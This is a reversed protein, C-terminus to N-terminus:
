NVIAGTGTYKRLAKIGSSTNILVKSSNATDTTEVLSVGYITGNKAMRLKSTVTGKPEAAIKVAITGNWVRLGIDIYPYPNVVTFPINENFIYYGPALPDPRILQRYVASYKSTASEVYTTIYLHHTGVTSPANFSTPWGWGGGALGLLWTSYAPVPAGINAPDVNANYAPNDLRGYTYILVANACQSSDGYVNVSMVENPAYSSKNLNVIVTASSGDNWLQHKWGDPDMAMNYTFTDAKAEHPLLISFSLSSVIFLMGLTVVNGAKKKTFHIIGALVLLIFSIALPIFPLSDKELNSPPLVPAIKSATNIQFDKTVNIPSGDLASKSSLSLNVKPSVCDDTIPVPIDKEVINEPKKNLIQGCLSGNKDTITINFNPQTIGTSTGIRSGVFGDASPTWYVTLKATDGKKYYDKDLTLNQITASAGRLVYHAVITNSITPSGTDTSNVLSFKIDYAQPKEVKPLAFSLAKIEGAKLTIAPTEEAVQKVRNGFVTRYFTEFQPKIEISRSFSNKVKCTILLSEEEIIDVGQTLTYKINKSDNKISLFCTEPSIELSGSPNSSLTVEKVSSLAFMMGSENRSIIWLQYKGSLAVPATYSIEKHVTINEGLSLSDPYVYEDAMVQSKSDTKILKVSYRVDPQTGIRNSIDFVIRFTNKDQSLIEANYINVTAVLQAFTQSIPVFLIIGSFILVVATITIKKFM